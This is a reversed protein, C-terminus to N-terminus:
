ASDPPALGADIINERSFGAEKSQDFEVDNPHLGSNDIVGATAARLLEDTVSKPKDADIEVIAEGTKRNIELELTLATDGVAQDVVSYNRQVIKDGDAPAVEEKVLDYDQVVPSGIRIRAVKDGQNASKPKEPSM